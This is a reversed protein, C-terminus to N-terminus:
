SKNCINCISVGFQKHDECAKDLIKSVCSVFDKPLRTKTKAIFDAVPKVSKKLFNESDHCISSVEKLEKSEEEVYQMLDSRYKSLFIETTDFKKMFEEESEKLKKVERIKTEITRTLSDQCNICFLFSKSHIINEVIICIRNPM